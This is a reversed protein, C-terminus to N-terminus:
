CSVTGVLHISLVLSHYGYNADAVGQYKAYGLDVETGTQAATPAAITTRVAQQLLAAVVSSIVIRNHM